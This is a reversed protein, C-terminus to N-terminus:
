SFSTRLGASLSTGSDADSGVHAGLLLRTSRQRGGSGTVGLRSDPCANSAIVTLPPRTEKCQPNERRLCTRPQPESMSFLQGDVMPARATVVSAPLQNLAALADIYPTGGAPAIHKCLGEFDSSHHVAVGSGPLM